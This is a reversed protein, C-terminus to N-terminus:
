TDKGHTEPRFPGTHQYHRTTAVSQRSQQYLMVNFQWTLLTHFGLLLNCFHLSVSFGASFLESRRYVVNCMVAATQVQHHPPQDKTDKGHTEPRFPGTHQYHRTTAVSQRSQQTILAGDPDAERGLSVKELCTVNYHFSFVLAGLLQLNFHLDMIMNSVSTGASSIGPGSLYDYYKIALTLLLLIIFIIIFYSTNIYINKYYYYM